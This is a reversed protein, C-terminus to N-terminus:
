INKKRFELMRSLPKLAKSIIDLSLSIEGTSKELAELINRLNNMKMWPCNGNCVFNDAQPRSPAMIFEKDPSAHQMKYLIGSETAVIFKRAPRNQSALLLQSTSGTVDALAIVESKSEPHVLVEAGPHASKLAAIGAPDFEQHVICCADWLLIDAGTLREIYNGLYRDPAWLIKKDDAALHKIVDVAISSTVVWDSM